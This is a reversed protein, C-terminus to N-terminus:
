SASSRFDALPKQKMPKQWRRPRRSLERSGIAKPKFCIMGEAAMKHLEEVAGGTACLESVHEPLNIGHMGYLDIHDTRLAKLQEEVLQRMASATGRKGKTMLVYRDRPVQLVDGLAKGYAHESKGYGYATEIHNIGHDLALQAVEACHDILRPSLEDRPQGSSEDFRMGGITIASLWQETKGFRRYEMEPNYNRIGVTNM